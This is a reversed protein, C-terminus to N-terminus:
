DTHSNDDVYDVIDGVNVELAKCIRGLVEMSVPLDKSMKAITTSTLRTEEMLDKKIMNRDILIKWLKKYSFAM